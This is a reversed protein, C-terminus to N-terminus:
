HDRTPARDVPGRGVVQIAAIEVRGERLLARGEASEAAVTRLLRRGIRVEIPMLRGSPLATARYSVPPPVVPTKPADSRTRTM